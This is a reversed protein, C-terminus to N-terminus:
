VSDSLNSAGTNGDFEHLAFVPLIRLVEAREFRLDSHEIQEENDTGAAPLQDPLLTSGASRAAFAPQEFKSNTESQDRGKQAEPPIAAL